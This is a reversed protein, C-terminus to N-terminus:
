GGNGQEASSCFAAVTPEEVRVFDAYTMRVSDTHTGANFNIRENEALATDCFTPLGFLSGFPPISGPELGTIGVVEERTAFRISKAGLLKRVLKSDVRRDGPLVLLAFGSGAKVVLAKAGSHLPEGRVQAAEASTYVPAHSECNFAVQSRDLLDKIRGLVNVEPQGM